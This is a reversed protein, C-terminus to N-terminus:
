KMHRIKRKLYRTVPHIPTVSLTEQEKYLLASGCGLCLPFHPRVSRAPRGHMRSRQRCEGM